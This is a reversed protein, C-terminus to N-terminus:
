KHLHKLKSWTETGFGFGALIPGDSYSYMIKKATNPGLINTKFVKYKKKHKPFTTGSM